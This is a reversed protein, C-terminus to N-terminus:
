MWRWTLIFAVVLVPWWVRLSYRLALTIIGSAAWILRFPSPLWSPFFQMAGSEFVGAAATREAGPHAPDDLRRSVFMAMLVTRLLNMAMHIVLGAIFLAVTFGLFLLVGFGFTKM